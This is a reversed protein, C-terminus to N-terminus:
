KTGAQRKRLYDESAARARYIEEKTRYDGPLKPLHTPLTPLRLTVQTARDYEYRAFHTIEVLRDDTPPSDITMVYGFPPYTIESINRIEGRHLDGIFAGGMLRPQGEINYYVFFRYRPPLYKAERNLVFRVLERHYLRFNEPEVSFFMTVIQKLIPLPYINYPYYLSPRGRARQLLEMGQRCWDAFFTGYWSGTKPNCSNCLTYAGMGQQQVKSGRPPDDPGLNIAERYEMLLVPRDNFAERPPVHEFSLPGVRGCICCTGRVRKSRSM